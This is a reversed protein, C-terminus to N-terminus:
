LNEVINHRYNIYLSGVFAAKFLLILYIKILICTIYLYQMINKTINLGYDYTHYPPILINIILLLVVVFMALFIIKLIQKFVTKFTAFFLPKIRLYIDEILVFTSSIELVFYSFIFIVVLLMILFYGLYLSYTMTFPIIYYSLLLLAGLHLLVTCQFKVTNIEHYDIKPIILWIKQAQGTIMYHLMKFYLFIFLIGFSIYLFMNLPVTWLIDLISLMLLVFIMLCIWMKLFYVFGDRLLFIFTKLLFILTVTDEDQDNM